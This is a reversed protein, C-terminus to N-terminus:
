TKQLYNNSSCTGPPPSERINNGVSYKWSGDWELKEARWTSGVVHGQWLLGQRRWWPLSLGELIMLCFLNNRGYIAETLFKPGLLLFPVATYYWEAPYYVRCMCWVPLIEFSNLHFIDSFIILLSIENILILNYFSWVVTSHWFDSWALSLLCSYIRPLAIILPCSSLLYHTSENYLPLPYM